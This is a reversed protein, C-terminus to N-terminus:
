VKSPICPGRSRVGASRSVPPLTVVIVSTRQAKRTRSHGPLGVSFSCDIQAILVKRSFRALLDPHAWQMVDCRKRELIMTGPEHWYDKPLAPVKLQSRYGRLIAYAVMDRYVVSYPCNVQTIFIAFSVRSLLLHAGLTAAQRVCVLGSSRSSPEGGSPLLAM